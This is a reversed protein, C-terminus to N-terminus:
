ASGALVCNKWDGFLTFEYTLGPQDATATIEISPNTTGDHYFTNQAQNSTLNISSPSPIVTKTVEDSFVETSVGSLSATAVRRFHTTAPLASSFPYHTSTVTTIDSTLLGPFTSNSSSQWYYTFTVSSILSTASATNAITDPNESACHTSDDGITGPNVDFITFPISVVSSCSVISFVEVNLIGQGSLGALTFDTGSATYSVSKDTAGAVVTRFPPNTGVSFKYSMANEDSGATITPLSGKVFTNGVGISNTSLSLNTPAETITVSVANSYSFSSVGSLSATVKRRFFTTTAISSSFVYNSSTVTTTILNATFAANTATQWVYALTVSTIGTDAADVASGLDAPTVNSCVTDDGTIIGPTFSFITFNIEVDEICLGLSSKAEVKLDGQDKLHNLDTGSATFSATLGAAIITKFGLGAVSFDYTLGAVSGTASIKIESGEVFTNNVLDNTALALSFPSEVTVTISQTSTDVSCGNPDIFEYTVKDNDSLPNSLAASYTITNVGLLSRKNGGNLYFTYTATALYPTITFTIPDGYCVSRATSSLSSIIPSYVEIGNLINLLSNNSNDEDGLHTFTVTLSYNGPTSLDLATTITVTKSQGVPISSGAPLTSSVEAFGTLTFTVTEGSLDQPNNGLNDFTVTFNVSSTPCITKSGVLNVGNIRIDNDQASLEPFSLFLFLVLVFINIRPFIKNM